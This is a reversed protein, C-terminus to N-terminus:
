FPINDDDSRAYFEKLIGDALKSLLYIYARKHHSTLNDPLALVETRLSEFVADIISDPAQKIDHLQFGFNKWYKDVSEVDHWEETVESFIHPFHKKRLYSISEFPHSWSHKIASVVEEQNRATAVLCCGLPNNEFLQSHHILWQWETMGLM